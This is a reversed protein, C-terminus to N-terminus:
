KIACLALIFGARFYKKRRMEHTAWATFLLVLPIDQGGLFNIWVPFYFCALVAAMPKPFWLWVFGAMALVNLLQWVVQAVPYSLKGLPYLLLAYFPPRIFARVENPNAFHKQIEHAHEASYLYPTGVLKAGAYFSLFDTDHRGQVTYALGVALLAGFAIGLALWSAKPSEQPLDM